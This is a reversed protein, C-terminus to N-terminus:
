GWRWTFKLKVRQESREKDDECYEAVLNGSFHSGGDAMFVEPMRFHLRIRELPTAMRYTGGLPSSVQPAVADCPGGM